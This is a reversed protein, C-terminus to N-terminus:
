TVEDITEESAESQVPMVLIKDVRNGDMDMVEFRLGQWEFYDAAKPIKGLYTIVFGGLTHYNGQKEGPLEEVDFLDRFDEILLTGDLLWSGDERQINQPLEEQDLRTIEGIIAELIDNITVLGQIVGYEDVVLAVHNGSQKFLELMKLGRTSEPVFLPQELSDTLEFPEGSFCGALLNTVQVVGLVEDLSGQCVPFRTHRSNVIKHRNTEASDELDLWIIEPRATMLTSVRRDGLRLVQEVMDQEVEEFMGAETGQQIMVKIEEETVLPEDSTTGIGLLHLVLDTSFSLLNVVPAVLFALWRLPFAVLKAIKEPHKLALRKPVLEGIVLSLYTISLVVIALAMGQSQAAVLPIRKLFNALHETLNAGGYAGALIGILTIGIQVTSLIQNPANALELAVQAQKDGQAALQELRIKRSSVIAIESLAFIGNLVILLLIIAIESTASM